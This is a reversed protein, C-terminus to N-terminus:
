YDTHKQSVLVQQGESNIKQIYYSLLKLNDTPTIVYVCELDVVSLLWVYVYEAM